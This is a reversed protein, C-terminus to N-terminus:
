TAGELQPRFREYAPNGPIGPFFRKGLGQVKRVAGFRGAGDQHVSVKGCQSRYGKGTDVLSLEAAKEGIGAGDPTYFGWACSGCTAGRNPCNESRVVRNRPDEPDSPMTKHM